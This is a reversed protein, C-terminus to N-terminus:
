PAVPVCLRLLAGGMWTQVGVRPDVDLAGAWTSGKLKAGGSAHMRLLETSKRHERVQPVQMCMRLATCCRLRVHMCMRLATCCRLLVHMCVCLATCCRLLVHMCVRLATCCRLLVHMCVHSAACCRLLVSVLLIRNTLDWPLCCWSHDRSWNLRPFQGEAPLQAQSDSPEEDGRMHAGAGDEPKADMSLVCGWPCFLLTSMAEEHTNDNNM